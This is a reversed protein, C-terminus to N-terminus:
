VPIDIILNPNFEPNEMEVGGGAKRRGYGRPNCLVHTDGLKYDMSDHTHGHLWYDPQYWGILSEMNCAFYANSPSTFYRPHISQFSPLFHTIVVNRKARSDVLADALFSRAIKNEKEADDPSWLQSGNRIVRFDNIYHAAALKATTSFQAGDLCFDTWLTTGHFAVGQLIVSKNYLFHVGLSKATMEMKKMTDHYEQGYFEHNGPVYILEKDPWTAKAYYIGADYNSIDGALIIIDADNPTPYFATGEMHLDSLLNIKPM